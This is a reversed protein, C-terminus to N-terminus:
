QVWQLISTLKYHMYHTTGQTRNLLQVQQEPEKRM